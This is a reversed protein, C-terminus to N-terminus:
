DKKHTTGAAAHFKAHDFRPNDKAFAAAHSDALSQRTKADTHSKILEAIQKFHRRTFAEKLVGKVTSLTNSQNTKKRREKSVRIDSRYGGHNVLSRKVDEPDQHSGYFVKDIEKRKLYVKYAHLEEELKEAARTIGAERHEAKGQARDSQKGFFEANSGAKSKLARVKDAGSMLTHRSLENLQESENYTHAKAAKPWLKDHMKFCAEHHKNHGHKKLEDMFFKAQTKDGEDGFHKALHAINATHRNQSENRKYTTMFSQAAEELHKPAGHATTLHKDAFREKFGQINKKTSMDNEENISDHHPVLSKHEIGITGSHFDVNTHGSDFVRSVKGVHGELNRLHDRWAFGEKSYGMHAPASQAHHKLADPHLKVHDGVKFPNPVKKGENMSHEHDHIQKVTWGKKKLHARAEDKTQGGMISAGVDSMRLTKKAILTQHHDFVDGRIPRGEKLIEAEHEQHGPFDKKLKKLIHNLARKRNSMGVPYEKEHVDWRKTLANYTQATGRVTLGEDLDALKKTQREGHHTVIWANVKAHEEPTLSPNNHITHNPSVVIHHRMAILGGDGEDKFAHPVVFTKGNIKGTYHQDTKLPKEFTNQVAELRIAHTREPVRARVTEKENKKEVSKRQAEAETRKL